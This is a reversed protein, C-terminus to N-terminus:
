TFLLILLLLLALFGCTLIFGLWFSRLFNM